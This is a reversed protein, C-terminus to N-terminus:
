ALNSMRFLEVTQPITNRPLRIQGNQINKRDLNGWLKEGRSEVINIYLILVCGYESDYGPKSSGLGHGGGVSGLKNWSFIM